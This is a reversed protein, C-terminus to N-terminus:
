GVEGGLLTVALTSLQSSLEASSIGGGVVTSTILTPSASQVIEVQTYLTPFIPNNGFSNVAILNGGSVICGIVNDASSRDGFSIRWDNLLTMTIGVQTLPATSIIDKGAATIFVEQDLNNPEDFWTV